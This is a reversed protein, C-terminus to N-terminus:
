NGLRMYCGALLVKLTYSFNEYGKSPLSDIEVSNVEVVSVVTKANLKSEEMDSTWSEEFALEPHRHLERRWRTFDQQSGLTSRNVVM